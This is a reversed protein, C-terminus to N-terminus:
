GTSGYYVNKRKNTYFTAAQLASIGGYPLLLAIDGLFIHIQDELLEQAKNVSFDMLSEYSRPYRFM